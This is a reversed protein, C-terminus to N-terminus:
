RDGYETPLIPEKRPSLAASAQLQSSKGNLGYTLFQQLYIEVGGYERTADVHATFKVILRGSYSTTM